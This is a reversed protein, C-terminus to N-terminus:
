VRKPNLVSWNPTRPCGNKWTTRKSEFSVLEANTPVWEELDDMEDGVIVKPVAALCTYRTVHLTYPLIFLIISLLISKRM